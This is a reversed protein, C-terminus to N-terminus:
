DSSFVHFSMDFLRTDHKCGTVFFAQSGHPLGQSERATRLSPSLTRAGPDRKPAVVARRGGRHLPIHARQLLRSIWSSSRMRALIWQESGGVAGAGTDGTESGARPASTPARLGSEEALSVDVASKGVGRRRM